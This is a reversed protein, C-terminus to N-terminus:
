RVDGLHSLNLCLAPKRSTSPCTQQNQLLSPGVPAPSERGYRSTRCSVMAFWTTFQVGTQKALSWKNAATIWISNSRRIHTASLIKDKQAQLCRKTSIHPMCGSYIGSTDYNSYIINIKSYRNPQISMALSIVHELHAYKQNKLWSTTSWHHIYLSKSQVQAEM